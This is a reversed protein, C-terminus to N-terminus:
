HLLAGIDLGAAIQAKILCLERCLFGHELAGADGCCLSINHCLLVNRKRGSTLAANSRFAALEGDLGAIDREFTRAVGFEALRGERDILAVERNRSLLGDIQLPSGIGDRFAAHGDNGFRAVHIHAAGLPKLEILEIERGAAAHEDVIKVHRNVFAELDRSAAVNLGFADADFHLTCRAAHVKIGM